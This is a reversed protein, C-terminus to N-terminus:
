GDCSSENKKYNFKGLDQKMQKIFQTRPGGIVPKGKTITTM